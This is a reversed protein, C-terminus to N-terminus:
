TYQQIISKKACLSTGTKSDTNLSNQMKSSYQPALWPNDGLRPVYVSTLSETRVACQPSRGTQPCGWISHGHVGYRSPLAIDKAYTLVLEFSTHSRVGEIQLTSASGDLFAPM